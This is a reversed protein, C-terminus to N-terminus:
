LKHKLVYGREKEKINQIFDKGRLDTYHMVMDTKVLITNRVHINHFAM